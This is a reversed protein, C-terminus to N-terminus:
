TLTSDIDSLTTVPGLVPAWSNTGWRNLRLDRRPITEGGAVEASTGSAAANGWSSLFDIGGSGLM